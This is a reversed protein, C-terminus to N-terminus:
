VCVQCIVHYGRKDPEYKPRNSGARAEEEGDENVEDNIKQKKKIDEMEETKKMQIFCIIWSFVELFRSTASQAFNWEANHL